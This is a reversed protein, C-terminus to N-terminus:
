MASSYDSKARVPTAPACRKPSLRKMWWWGLLTTSTTVAAVLPKAMPVFAAGFLSLYVALMPSGCCGILWCGAVALFGSLTIGGIALNRTTCAREERYRRLSVAAFAFALGYSYGLWYGRSEVYSGWWSSAFTGPPTVWRDQASDREPFTGLWLFHVAMVGLFVILPLRARRLFSGNM